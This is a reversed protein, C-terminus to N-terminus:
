SAPAEDWDIDPGVPVIRTPNIQTHSEYYHHKAHMLNTTAAINPWQYLRRAYPWLHPYDILRKKNCKFHGVYIADFRFLTTFLRWDSELPTDGLLFPQQSLREDLDDLTDFLPHVAEEYAAQTTAFGAKYVGNNVTHYVRDNLEDIAKHKDAPYYDGPLAGVKDFAQNFMRIIDASENSVVTNTKKDWLIPVTVRGTYHPDARTYIEHAFQSHFLADGVIGDKDPEFSWGNKGMLWHVVSVDILKGLGKLARYILTRHAWPCAYSVYLHYRNPEAQFGGEGTPGPTGDQTVWHRFVSPNRVFKGGSSDTDYWQDHWQGDVLLGM